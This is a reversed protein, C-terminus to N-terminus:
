GRRSWRWRSYLGAAVVVLALVAAPKEGILDRIGAWM